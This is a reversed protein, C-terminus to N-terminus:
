DPFGPGVERPGMRLVCIRKTDSAACLAVALEPGTVQSELSPWDASRVLECPMFIWHTPGNGVIRFTHFGKALTYFVLRGPLRKLLQFRISEITANM